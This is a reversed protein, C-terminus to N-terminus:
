LVLILNHHGWEQGVSSAENNEQAFCVLIFGSQKRFGGWKSYYPLLSLLSAWLLHALVRTHARTHACLCVQNFLLLYLLQELNLVQQGKYLASIIKQHSFFVNPISYPSFNPTYQFQNQNRHNSGWLSEM